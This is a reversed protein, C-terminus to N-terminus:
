KVYKLEKYCLYGLEYLIGVQALLEPNITSFHFTFSKGEVLQSLGEPIKDKISPDFLVPQFHLSVNKEIIEISAFQIKKLRLNYYRDKIQQYEKTLLEYKVANNTALEFEDVYPKIAAKLQEFILSLHLPPM